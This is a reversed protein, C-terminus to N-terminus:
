DKKNSGWPPPNDVELGADKVWEEIAANIKKDEFEFWAERRDPHDLLVDKFRRFAGKGDLAIWLKEQLKEDDLREVFEVMWEYAESPSPTEICLYRDPNEDIDDPTVEGAEPDLESIFITKGTELDFFWHAEESSFTFADKLGEWDIKLHTNMRRTGIIDDLPLVPL